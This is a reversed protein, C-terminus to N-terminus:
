YRERGASTGYERGFKNKHPMWRYGRADLTVQVPGGVAGAATVTIEKVEEAAVREHWVHVRYRGPPVSDLTFAGDAGPQTFFRNGAVLVYSVMRPHVNCYIRVLGAATVTYSKSENRGYLGLDFQNGESPSFVNHDFPDHNPFRLASGIPVVLVHPVYIKHDIAVDFTGPRAPHDHGELYVVAAGLDRSARNGREQITVRGTVRAQAAVAHGAAVSLAAVVAIWRM